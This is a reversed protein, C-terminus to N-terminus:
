FGKEMKKSLLEELVFSGLETFITDLGKQQSCVINTPASLTTSHGCLQNWFHHAFTIFFPPHEWQKITKINNKLIQKLEEAPMKESDITGCGM